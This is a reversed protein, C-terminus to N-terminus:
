FHKASFPKGLPNLLGHAGMAVMGKASQAYVHLFYTPLIVRLALRGYLSKGFNSSTIADCGGHPGPRRQSGKDKHGHFSWTDVTRNDELVLGPGDFGIAEFM